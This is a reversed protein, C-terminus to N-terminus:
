SSFYVLHALSAPVSSNILLSSDSYSMNYWTLSLVSTVKSM